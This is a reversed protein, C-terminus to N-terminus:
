PAVAASLSIHQLTKSLNDTLKLVTESLKLGYLFRFNQMVTKVGIIRAKLDPELRGSELSEEWLQLLSNYNAVVSELSDERVTWRTHCFTRLGVPSQNDDEKAARIKDFAANRKPSFKVLRTIEFATELTCGQM